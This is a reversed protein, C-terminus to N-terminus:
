RKGGIDVSRQVGSLALILGQRCRGRRIQVISVDRFAILEAIGGRYPGREMKLILWNFNTELM